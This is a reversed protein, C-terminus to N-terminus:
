ERGPLGRWALGASGGAHDLRVRRARWASDPAVSEMAGLVVAMASDGVVHLILPEGGTLAERLVARLTDAPFYHRGYWDPRHPLYTYARRQLANGEIPTGDIVYKMGSRRVTPALRAPLARWSALERGRPSTAPM